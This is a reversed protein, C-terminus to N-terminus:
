IIVLVEATLASPFIMRPIFPDCESPQKGCHLAEQPPRLVPIKDSWVSRNEKWLRNLTEGPHFLNAKLCQASLKLQKIEFSGAGRIKAQLESSASIANQLETRWCQRNKMDVMEIKCSTYAPHISNRRYVDLDGRMFLHNKKNHQLQIHQQRNGLWNHM